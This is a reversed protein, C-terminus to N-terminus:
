SNIWKYSGDSYFEKKWIPVNSKIFELLESCVFFSDRRSCSNVIILINVDKVFLIGKYQYIHIQCKYKDLFYFCKEKIISYALSNFINYDVKIVNKNNNIGKITGIFSVIAGEKGTLSLSLCKDVNIKTDMINIIIDKTLYM